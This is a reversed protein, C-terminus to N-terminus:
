LYVFDALPGHSVPRSPITVVERAGYGELASLTGVGQTSDLFPM